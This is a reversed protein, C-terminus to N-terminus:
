TRWLSLSRKDCPMILFGDNANSGESIFHGLSTQCQLTPFGDKANSGGFMFRDKSTHCQPSIKNQMLDDLLLAIKHRIVNHPFWRKCLGRWVYVIKHPIVNHPFYKQM